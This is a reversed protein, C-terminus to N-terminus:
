ELESGTDFKPLNQQLKIGLCLHRLLPTLLGGCKTASFCLSSNSLVQSMPSKMAHM